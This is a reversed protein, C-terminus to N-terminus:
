GMFLDEVANDEHFLEYRLVAAIGGLMKLQQGPPSNIPVIIVEGRKSFVRQMVKEVRARTDDFSSLMEDLVLLKEVAGAEAAQEVQDIGYAVKGPKRLLLLNFEELVKEARTVGLDQLLRRVVDRRLLERVGAYGGNAVTDTYIPTAPLLARLTDAVEDKLFGPSAVVVADAGFRKLADVIREVVRKIGMEKARPFFREDFPMSLSGEDLLRVGQNQVLAVAYEDFDLAAVVVRYPRLSRLVKEILHRPIGGERIITVEQGPAISLTHHSGKVGFREPGEVVVGHVRLRNTFAQFELREARVTLIMPRRRKESGKVSVDRTTLGRVLDGPAIIMSLLWLDDETEPVLRLVGRKEDFELIKM